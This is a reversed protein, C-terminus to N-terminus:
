DARRLPPASWAGRGAPLASPAAQRPSYLRLVLRFDGTPAPLWNSINDFGPAFSQIQLTLSGDADLVLKDRSGLSFREATNPVFGARGNGEALMTISWFADAPPLQGKAFRLTYDATGHLARGEADVRSSMPLMQQPLTGPWDFAAVVARGFYDTGFDGSGLPLQWGNVSAFWSPRHAVIKAMARPGTEELVSQWAPELASTDFAKGPELGIRAMKQLLAADQADPPAVSAMLRALLNFYGATDMAAILQAPTDAPSLGPPTDASPAAPGPPKGREALAAIRLRAQLANVSRQDAPSAQIRGLIAVYRTPSPVHRVGKPVQGQWGPGSILLTAAKGGGSRSDLTALTQTWLSHLNFSFYRKGMDPHSFLLAQQGLDLWAFSALTDADTLLPHREGPQTLRRAHWFSNLPARQGEPKAVNSMQLRRIESSILPYGYAYAEDAIQTWEALQAARALAAAEAAQRAALEAATPVPRPPVPPSQVCAALLLTLGMALATAAMRRRVTM